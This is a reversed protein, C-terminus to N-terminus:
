AVLWRRCLGTRYLWANLVRRLEAPGGQCLLASGAGVLRRWSGGPVKHQQLRGRLLFRRRAAASYRTRQETIVRRVARAHADATLNIRAGSQLHVIVLPAPVCPVVQVGRRCLFAQALVLDEGAALSPDFALDADRELFLFPTGWVADLLLEDGAFSEAQVQIRRRRPGLVVEYGCLVCPAGTARALEWQRSLKGPAYEDDDDLFTVWRGRAAALGVNRAAAATGAGRAPLIRLRPDAFAPQRAIADAVPPDRRNNDVLLVEFSVGTQGLVSALARKLLSSRDRTPLIVSIDPM